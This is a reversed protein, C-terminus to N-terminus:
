DMSLLRQDVGKWKREKRAPQHSNWVDKIGSYYLLINMSMTPFTKNKYGPFVRLMQLGSGFEAPCLSLSSKLIPLVPFAGSFALVFPAGVYLGESRFGSFHLCKFWPM